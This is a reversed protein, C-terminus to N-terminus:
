TATALGLVLLGLRLKWLWAAQERWKDCLGAGTAGPCAKLIAKPKAEVAYCARTTYTDQTARLCPAGAKGAVPYLKVM